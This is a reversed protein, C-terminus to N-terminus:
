RLILRSVKHDYRCGTARANEIACKDAQSKLAFDAVFHGGKWTEVRYFSATREPPIEGMHGSPLADKLTNLIKSTEMNTTKGM